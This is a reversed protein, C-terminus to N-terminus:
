IKETNTESYMGKPAELALSREILGRYDFYHANLWDISEVSNFYIDYYKDCLKHYEEKEEETMFSMPRLYPLSKELDCIHEYGEEDSGKSEIITTTINDLRCINYLYGRKYWFQGTYNGDSDILYDAHRVIVGYPLRACLDKLLLEKDKEKM